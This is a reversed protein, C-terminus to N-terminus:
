LIAGVRKLLAYVRGMYVRGEDPTLAAYVRITGNYFVSVHTDEFLGKVLKFFDSTEPVFYNSEVLRRLNVYRGLRGYWLSVIIKAGELYRAVLSIVDDVSNYDRLTVFACYRSYKLKRTVHYGAEALIDNVRPLDEPNKVRLALRVMHVNYPFDPEIFEDPLRTRSIKRGCNMCAYYCRLLHCIERRYCSVKEVGLVSALYEKLRTRPVHRYVPVGAVVKWVPLVVV